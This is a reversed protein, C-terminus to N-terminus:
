KCDIGKIVVNGNGKVVEGIIFYEEGVANLLKSAEKFVRSDFIMTLGIGMNFIRYLESKNINTCNILFDYCIPKEWSDSNIMVNVNNPIVRKINDYFGGGTIHAMSKPYIKNNILAEIARTYIKTPELLINKLMINENIKYDLDFNNEEFLIKRILAYGNSHFGSSPLGVIIDGNKVSSGDIINEKEIVGACFGALDFDRNSYLSPLEATEGGVLSINSIECGKAIGKVVETLQEVDLKGTAIYDLFVLPKAGVVLLDNVNMAVLDIGITDFKNAMVAIKLKSGVGDTTTVLVPNNYKKLFSLDFFAAFSGYFDLVNKNYTKKIYPKIASVFDNAKDIDVGAEKYNSL